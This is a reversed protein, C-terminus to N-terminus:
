KSFIKRNDKNFQQETKTSKEAAKEAVHDIKKKTSTNSLTEDELKKAQPNEFQVTM